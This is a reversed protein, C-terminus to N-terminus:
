ANGFLQKIKNRRYGHPKLTNIRRSAPRYHTKIVASMHPFFQYKNLILERAKSLADLRSEWNDEALVRRICSISAEPNTIDIRIFSLKPFYDELNKCGWYLPICWSFFCDAVKETCYDNSSSNEIALSYKYPILAIAKDDIPRIGRGYIDFEVDSERIKDLLQMRAIHGPFVKQNSTVWSMKKSKIPPCLAVLEDFTRDIHWPLAPQSRIYETALQIKPPYHTFVKGYQIHGTPRWRLARRLDPEQILGWINNRNCSVIIPNLVTNLVLVIDPNEVTSKDLFFEINGWRGSHVPTQRLLDPYTWNKLILVKIDYGSHHGSEYDSSQTSQM